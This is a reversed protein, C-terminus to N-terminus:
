LAIADDADALAERCSPCLKGDLVVGYAAVTTEMLDGSPEGCHTCEGEPQVFPTHPIHSVDIEVADAPVNIRIM